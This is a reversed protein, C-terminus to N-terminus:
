SWVKNPNKLITFLVAAEVEKNGIKKIEEKVNILLGMCYRLCNHHEYLDCTNKSMFYKKDIKKSSGSVTHNIICCLDYRTLKM